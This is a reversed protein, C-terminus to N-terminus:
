SYKYNKKNTKNPYTKTQKSTNRNNIFISLISQILQNSPNQKIPNHQIEHVM